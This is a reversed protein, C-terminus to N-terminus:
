QKVKKKRFFFQNISLLLIIGGIGIIFFYITYRNELFMAAIGLIVCIKGGFFEIAGVRKAFSEDIKGIEKDSKYNNIFSYKEEAEKIVDDSSTLNLQSPTKLVTVKDGEKIHIYTTCPGSNELLFSKFSDLVEQNFNSDFAFHVEKFTAEKMDDPNIVDECLLKPEHSRKDTKVIFGLM